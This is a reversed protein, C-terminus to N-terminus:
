IEGAMIRDLAAAWQEKWGVMGGEWNGLEWSPSSSSSSSSKKAGEGKGRNKELVWMTRNIVFGMQFYVGLNETDEANVTIWVKLGSEAAIRIVATLLRQEIEKERYSRHYNEAVAVESVLLRTSDGLFTVFGLRTGSSPDILSLVDEEAVLTAKAPHQARFWAGDEVVKLANLWNTTNSGGGGGGGGGGSSAVANALRMEYVMEARDSKDFIRLVRKDFSYISWKANIEFFKTFNIQDLSEPPLFLWTRNQSRDSTSQTTFWTPANSLPIHSPSSIRHHHALLDDCM